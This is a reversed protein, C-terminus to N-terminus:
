QAGAKAAAAPDIQKLAKAADIRLNGNSDNLARLLDPIAVKAASGIKGLSFAALCRARPNTDKLRIVLAPIFFGRGRRYSM